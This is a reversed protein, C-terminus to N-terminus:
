MEKGRVTNERKWDLKETQKQRHVAESAEESGKNCCVPKGATLPFKMKTTTPWNIDLVWVNWNLQISDNNWLSHM